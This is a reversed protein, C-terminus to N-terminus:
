LGISFIRNNKKISTVPNAKVTTFEYKPRKGQADLVIQASLIAAALLLIKKM